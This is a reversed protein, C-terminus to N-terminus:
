GNLSGHDSEATSIFTNAAEYELIAQEAYLVQRGVKVYAPGVGTQRQQEIKRTSCMWRDALGLTNLFPMDHRKRQNAAINTANVIVVIAHAACFNELTM